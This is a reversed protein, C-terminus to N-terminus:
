SRLLRIRTRYDPLISAVLAYFEKGHNKHVIHALEHVIVYDIAEDSYQMLRWSFCLRNKASCSGFRTRASTITIGTHSLEMREAYHAVRAPLEARARQQLALRQAETPEPHAQARAQQQALKEAIWKAHAAVFQTIDRQPCRRPARVLVAGDRTIEVALTRRSSRVLTYAPFNQPEM